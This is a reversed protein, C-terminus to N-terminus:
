ITSNSSQIKPWAQDLNISKVQYVLYTNKGPNKPFLGPNKAFESFSSVTPTLGWNALSSPEGGALYIVKLGPCSVFVNKEITTLPMGIYVKQLSQCGAFAMSSLQTVKPMSASTLTRNAMFASVGVSTANPLSLSTLSCGYFAGVGITVASNLNVSTLKTGLFANDGISTVHDLNISTLPINKFAGAGITQVSAPLHVTTIPANQHAAQVIAIMDATVATVQDPITLTGHSLTWATPHTPDYAPAAPKDESKPAAPEAQKSSSSSPQTRSSSSSVSSSSVSGGWSIGLSALYAKIDEASCGTLLSAALAASVVTTLVKKIYM